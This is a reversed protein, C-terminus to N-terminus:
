EIAQAIDVDNFANDAPSLVNLGRKNPKNLSIQGQYKLTPIGDKDSEKEVTLSEHQTHNLVENNM